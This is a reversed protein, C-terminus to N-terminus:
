ARTEALRKALAEDKLNPEYQVECGLAKLADIGSQEFKDAVLVTM